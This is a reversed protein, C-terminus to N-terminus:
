KIKTTIWEIFDLSDRDLSVDIDTNLDQINKRLENLENKLNNILDPADKIPHFLIQSCMEDLDKLDSLLNDRDDDWTYTQSLVPIINGTENKYLLGLEFKNM